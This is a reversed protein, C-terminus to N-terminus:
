KLQTYDIKGASNRPLKEISRCEFSSYHIQFKESLENVCQQFLEDNGDEFYLFIHQDDSTVAISGFSKLHDELEELNIRSGYIKSIRKLRGTVYFMKDEDFYGLDGTLLVGHHNDGEILDAPGDAYGLMVNSGEYVLEGITGSTQIEKGDKFIHLKGGPIPKGISGAKAPLSEMPLYAIRATAETQGYMVIFKRGRKHMLQFYKLILRKDLKGGAQTLTNLSPLDMKEFEVRELMEYTYPVGALSTCEYLKFMNWFEAQVVSKQTLVVTAGAILHSHLVSLGYSYHIPLSAVAKEQQDIKLYDVISAANALINVKSLRIMKPSGTTGSSSLLVQLEPHLAPSRQPANCAWVKIDPYFPVTLQYDKWGDESCDFIMHPYYTQVLKQKIDTKLKCDLLCVVHGHNIAALYSAIDDLANRSFVFILGRELPYFKAFREQDEVLQLYTLKRGNDGDILAVSQSYQQLPFTVM